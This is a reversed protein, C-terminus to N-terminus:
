SGRYTSYSWPSSLLPVHYSGGAELGVQITIEDLFAPEPLGPVTEAFYAGVEFVIRYIGSVLAKGEVLPADTRGDGNTWGENLRVWGGTESKFDLVWRIGAGPQGSYTDLVHTSLKGSM